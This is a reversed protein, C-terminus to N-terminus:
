EFHTSSLDLHYITGNDYGVLYIEGHRDVGFSAIRTSAQGIQRIRTLRRQDQTIGM